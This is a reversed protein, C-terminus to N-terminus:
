QGNDNAETRRHNPLSEMSDRGAKYDQSHVDGDVDSVSHVGSPASDRLVNPRRRERLARRRWNREQRYVRGPDMYLQDIM